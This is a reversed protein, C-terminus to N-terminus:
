ASGLIRRIADRREEESMETKSAVERAQDFAAAKKELATIRRNKLAIEREKLEIKKLEITLRGLKDLQDLDIGEQNSYAENFSLGDILLRFATYLDNQGETEETLAKANICLETLREITREKKRRTKYRSISQLSVRVRFQKLLRVRVEELTLGEEFLWRQLAEAEKAPLTELKARSQTKPLKPKTPM